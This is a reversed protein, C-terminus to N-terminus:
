LPLTTVELFGMAVKDLDWYSYPKSDYRFTKCFQFWSPYKCIVSYEKKPALNVINEYDSLTM